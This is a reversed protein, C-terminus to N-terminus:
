SPITTFSFLSYTYLQKNSIVCQNIESQVEWMHIKYPLNMSINQQYRPFIIFFFM